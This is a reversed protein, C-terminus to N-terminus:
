KGRWQKLFSKVAKERDMRIYFRGPPRPNFTVLEFDHLALLEEHTIEQAEDEAYNYLAVGIRQKV